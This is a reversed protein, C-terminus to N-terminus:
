SAPADVPGAFGPGGAAVYGSSAGSTDPSVWFSYLSGARLLFRFRVPRDALSGISEGGHWSVRCATSDASIPVCADATFPPIPRGDRTLVEVRLEGDPADVNVFLYKGSFKLPRTTLEGGDPGADMSAFGDRRLTALGTACTGSARTRAEGARGSFYFYLKDGVVLCCGGASQVNGWNWDGYHESVAIFPQRWPRYWQWGDRSFAVLVQNPKPRDTPQGYWISFLGLLISEYAIADLNYLEPPTQLDSRVPDADDAGIWLPPQGQKWQAGHVLDAAEWYRRCRGIGLKPLYERLSYVWVKRFANWFFTTRDGCPGSREVAQRWHVGDASLYISLAGSGGDLPCIAMKYRQQPDDTELDLWVTGSDRRRPLVINTGPVVDLEPKEWHIGDQSTAYCTARAYGGMYWMKFRRDAPDYWVGDSFVMACPGGEREWPRDPRVVPNDPHPDAAHFSRQLTTTEVLFDDVLLQRGVDIPIVQPPNTLYSPLSLPERTLTQTRPPWPEPLTVGNYLAMQDGGGEAALCLLLSLPALTRM